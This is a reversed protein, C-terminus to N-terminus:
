GVHYWIHASVELVQLISYSYLEDGCQSSDGRGIVSIMFRLNACGLLMSHILICQTLSLIQAKQSASQSVLHIGSGIDPLGTSLSILLGYVSVHTLQM